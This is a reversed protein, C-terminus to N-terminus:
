LDGYKSNLQEMRKNIMADFKRTIFKWLWRMFLVFAILLVVVIFAMPLIWFAFMDPIATTETIGVSQGVVASMYPIANLAVLLTITYGSTTMIFIKVINATLKFLSGSRGKKALRKAFGDKKKKDKVKSM